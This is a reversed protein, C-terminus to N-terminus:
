EYNKSLSKFLAKGKQITEEYESLPDSEWTIGGGVGIHVTNNKILMTRIIINFDCNNDFSFYGFSGTYIGRADRELEDIVEMARKKPAGTISGGPFVHKMLHVPNNELLEGTVTSVLHSVTEYEEIKFLEEVTVTGPICVKSLDNRELDVIMLLESKDKESHLLTQKLYEDEEKTRGRKVTGKIPRTSVRKKENLIFREPSSSLIYFDDGELYSAFPAPNIKRLRKYALFPHNHYESIYRHTMNAIYIDGERIYNRMDDVVNMYEKKTFLSQFTLNDVIYEEEKISTDLKEEIVKISKQEEKLINMASIFVKNEKHDIIIINDYFVFYADEMDDRHRTKINELKLGLNYSFFGMCGAIFPLDYTNEIPYKKLEASLFDFIDGKVEHYKELHPHESIYISDDKSKIKKFPHIGIFSYRGYKDKKSSDLFIHDKYYFIEFIEIATKDTKIEKVLM